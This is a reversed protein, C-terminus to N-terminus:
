RRTGLHEVLTQVWDEHCSKHPARQKYECEQTGIALVDYQKQVIFVCFLSLILFIIDKLIDRSIHPCIHKKTQRVDM